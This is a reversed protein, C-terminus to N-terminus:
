FYVYFKLYPENIKLYIELLFYSVHFLQTKLKKIDEWAGLNEDM